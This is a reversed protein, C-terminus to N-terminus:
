LSEIFYSKNLKSIEVRFLVFNIVSLASAHGFQNISSKLFLLCEM